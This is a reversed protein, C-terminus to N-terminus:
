RLLKRPGSTQRAASGVATQVWLAAELRRSDQGASAQPIRPPGRPSASFQRRRLDRRKLLGPAETGGDEHGLPGTVRGPLHPRQGRPMLLALQM